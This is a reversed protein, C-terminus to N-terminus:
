FVWKDNNKTYNKYANSLITKEKDFGCECFKRYVKLSLQIFNADATHSHMESEGRIIREVKGLIQNCSVKELRFSNDGKCYLYDGKHLLIRHILIDGNLYCFVIIDGPYYNKHSIVIAEDNEIINPLMSTGTVKISIEGKQKIKYKLLIFDANM